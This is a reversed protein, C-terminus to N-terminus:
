RSAVGLGLREFALDTHELGAWPDFVQDLREGIREVVEDNEELLARFGPAGPESARMAAKQVIVYADERSMGSDVLALLVRQSFVVGGAFQLNALMRDPRVELGRLVKNMELAMYDVLACADPFIVREASSHSIDREHWLATNELATLLNGRVVRALGCVRETIVPNRKHPMASSGKQEKGFPEFAEGIESRQLHRIETAIRELTGAAIALASMFESHRDRAVLQTSVPEVKLGLERCVHEEVRPDVTAHTGVAGSVRGAAADQTAQELRAISRYEGGAIRATQDSWCLNSSQSRMSIRAHSAHADIPRM